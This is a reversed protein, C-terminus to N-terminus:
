RGSAASRAASTIGAACVSGSGAAAPRTFNATSLPPRSLMVTTRMGTGNAASYRRALRLAAIQAHIARLRSTGAESLRGDASPSPQCFSGFLPSEHKLRQDDGSDDSSRQARRGQEQGPPQVPLHGPRPRNDAPEEQGHDAGRHEGRGGGDDQFQQVRGAAVQDGAHGAQDGDAHDPQRHGPAPRRPRVQAPRRGREQEDDVQGEREVPREGAVEARGARDAAHQEPEELHERRYQRDGVQPLDAVREAGLVPAAPHGRDAAPSVM